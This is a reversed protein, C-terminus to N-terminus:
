KIVMGWNDPSGWQNTTWKQFVKGDNEFAHLDAITTIKHMNGEPTSLLTYTPFRTVVYNTVPIYVTSQFSANSWIALIGIAAFVSAVLGLVGLGSDKTGMEALSIAMVVPILILWFTLAVSM